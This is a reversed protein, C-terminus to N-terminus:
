LEAEIEDSSQTGEHRIGRWSPEEENDSDIYIEKLNELREM